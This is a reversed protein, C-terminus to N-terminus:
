LLRFLFCRRAAVPCGGLSVGCAGEAEDGQRVGPGRPQLTLPHAGCHLGEAGQQPAGPRKHPHDVGGRERQQVRVM